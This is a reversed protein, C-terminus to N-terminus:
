VDVESGFVTLTCSNGGNVALGEGAALTIGWNFSMRSYGPISLSYALYSTGLGGGNVYVNFTNPGSTNNTLVASSVVAYKGSPATYATVPAMPGSNAKGLIKYVTAM